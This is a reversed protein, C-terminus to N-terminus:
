SPQWGLSFPGEEGSISIFYPISLVIYKFAIFFYSSFLIYIHVDCHIMLQRRCWSLSKPGLSLIRLFPTFNRLPTPPGAPVNVFRNLIYGGGSHIIGMIIVIFIVIITIITIISVFMFVVVGACVVVVIISIVVEAQM